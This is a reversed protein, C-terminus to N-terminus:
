SRGFRSWRLLRWAVVVIWLALMAVYTADNRLDNGLAWTLVLATGGALAIRGLWATISPGRRELVDRAGRLGPGLLPVDRPILEDDDDSVM